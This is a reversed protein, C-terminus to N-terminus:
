SKLVSVVYNIIGLLAGILGLIIFVVAPAVFKVLFLHIQEMSEQAILMQGGRFGFYYLGLCEGLVGIELLILQALGIKYSYIGNESIKPLIYYVIGCLSIIGIGVIFFLLYGMTLWTGASGTAIVRSMNWGEVFVPTTIIIAIISNLLAIVAYKKFLKNGVDVKSM